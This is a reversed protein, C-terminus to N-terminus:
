QKHIPQSSPQLSMLTEPHDTSIRPKPAYNKTVLLNSQHNLSLTSVLYQKSLLDMSNRIPITKTEMHLYKVTSRKYYSSIILLAASQIAQLKITKSNETNLTWVPSAYNILSLILTQLDRQAAGSQELPLM